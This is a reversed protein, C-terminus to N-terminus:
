GTPFPENRFVIVSKMSLGNCGGAMSDFDRGAYSLPNPIIPQYPYVVTLVVIQAPLGIQFNPSEIGGDADCTMDANATAFDAFVRVDYSLDACNILILENCMAAEFLPRQVGPDLLPLSATYVQGTRVARAAKNAASELMVNTGFMFATEFIGLVITFFIPAVLAFEVATSGDDERVFGSPSKGRRRWRFAHRLATIVM